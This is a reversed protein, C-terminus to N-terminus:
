HTRLIFLICNNTISLSSGLTSQDITKNKSNNQKEINPLRLLSMQLTKFIIVFEFIFEFIVTVLPTNLFVTQNTLIMLIILIM